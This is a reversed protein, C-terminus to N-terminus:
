KSDVEQQKFWDILALLWVPTGLKVAGVDTLPALILPHEIGFLDIVRRDPWM